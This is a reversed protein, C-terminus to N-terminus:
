LVSILTLSDRREVVEVFFRNEPTREIGGVVWAGEIHHGRNFKRKGFKSEDVEVVIGDGGV